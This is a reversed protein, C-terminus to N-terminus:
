APMRALELELGRVLRRAQRREFAILVYGILGAAVFLAAAISTLTIALGLTWGAAALVGRWHPTLLVSAGLAVGQVFRNM